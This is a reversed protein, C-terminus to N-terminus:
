EASTAREPKSSSAVVRGQRIDYEAIADTIEALERESEADTAQGMIEVARLVANRRGDDDEIFRGASM